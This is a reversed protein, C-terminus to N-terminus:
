VSASSSCHSEANDNALIIWLRKNSRYDMVKITLIIYHASSPLARVLVIILFGLESNPVMHLAAVISIFYAVRLQLRYQNELIKEPTCSTRNQSKNAIFKKQNVQFCVGFGM